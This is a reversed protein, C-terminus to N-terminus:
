FYRKLIIESLQLLMKADEHTHSANLYFCVGGHERVFCHEKMFDRSIKLMTESNFGADPTEVYLRILPAAGYVRCPYGNKNIIDRLSDIIINGVNYIHEHIKDRKMIEITKCAASISLTEGNYTNTIGTRNSNLLEAFEPKGGIVALPYGNSIAKAFTSLDPKINFKGQAGTLGLRFGTLVEDFILVIGNKDCLSRLKFLFDNKPEEMYNYPTLIIGAINKNENVTKEVFEYDDYAFPITLPRLVEPVGNAKGAGNAIQYWDHWGHYGSQLIIDKGTYARAMRVAATTVDGGTKMYKVWSLSPITDILLQSLDYELESAASFLFGKDIERKVEEDLETNAYGLIIPGCACFYDTYSDDNCTIMQTGKARKFFLPMTEEMYPKPRKANTQTAWPTVAITREYRERDIM